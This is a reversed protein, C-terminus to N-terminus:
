ISVMNSCLEVQSTNCLIINLLHMVCFVTLQHPCYKLEGPDSCLEVKDTHSFIEM